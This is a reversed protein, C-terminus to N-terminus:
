LKADYLWLNYIYDYEVNLINSLESFLRERILSDSYGDVFIYDYVDENRYLINLLGTFNAKENIKAGLEDTPYNETYFKKINAMINLNQKTQLRKVIDFIPRKKKNQM